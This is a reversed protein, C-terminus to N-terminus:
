RPDGVRPSGDGSGGHPPADGDLGPDEVEGAFKVMLFGRLVRMAAATVSYAGIAIADSDLYWGLVISAAALLLDIVFLGAVVHQKDLAQMSKTIPAVVFRAISFPVLLQAYLGAREWRDGFVFAFLEPGFLAVLLMPPVIIACMWFYARLVLRRARAADRREDALRKYFVAAVARGITAMPQGLVRQTIAYLGLAEAGFYSALLLGPLQASGRSLLGSWTSFVPFRWHRRAVARARSLRLEARREWASRLGDGMMMMSSVFMGFADFVTLWLATPRTFLGAGLQGGSIVVRQVVTARAVPGFQARRTRWHTGIGVMSNAFTGFAAVVYWSHATPWGALSALDAGFASAAVLYALTFVVTICVALVLAHLADSEDEVLVLAWDYRGSAFVAPLTAGAMYLSLIAFDEPTYMRTLVPAVATAILQSLTTGGALRFVNAVFGQGRTLRRLKRRLPRDTGAM